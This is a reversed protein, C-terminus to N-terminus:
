KPLQPVRKWIIFVLLMLPLYIKITKLWQPNLTTIAAFDLDDESLTSIITLHQWLLFRFCKLFLHYSTLFSNESSPFIAIWTIWHHFMEYFQQRGNLQFVPWIIFQYSLPFIPFCFATHENNAAKPLIHCFSILHFFSNVM